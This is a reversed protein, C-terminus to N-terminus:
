RRSLKRLFKELFRRNEENLQNFKIGAMNEDPSIWAIEGEGELNFYGKLITLNV